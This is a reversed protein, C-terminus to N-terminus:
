GLTLLQGVGPQVGLRLKLCRGQAGCGGHLVRVMSAIRVRVRVKVRVRIEVWVGVRVRNREAM